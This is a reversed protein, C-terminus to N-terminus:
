RVLPFATVIRSPTVVRPSSERDRAVGERTELDFSIV